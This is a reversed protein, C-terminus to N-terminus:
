TPFFASTVARPLHPSVSPTRPRPTVAVDESSTRLMAAARLAALSPPTAPDTTTFTKSSSVTAKIPSPASMLSSLVPASEPWSTTSRALSLVSTMETAPPSAIEPPVPMPPATVTEMMSLLTKASASPLLTMLAASPIVRSASECESISATAMLTAPTTAVSPTPKPPAPLPPRFVTVLLTRATMPPPLVTSAPPARFSEAASSEFM